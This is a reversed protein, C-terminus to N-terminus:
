SPQTSSDPETGTDHTTEAAVPEEAPDSSAQEESSDAEAPEEPTEAAAQEEEPDATSEEATEAPASEDPVDSLVPEEDPLEAALSENESEAAVSEDESEAAVPEDESEVLVAEEESEAAAPEDQRRGSQTSTRSTHYGDVLAILLLFVVFTGGAGIIAFQLPRRYKLETSSDRTLEYASSVNAGTVDLRDQMQALQEPILTTASALAQLAEKDSDSEVTVVILPAQSTPDGAFEVQTHPYRDEFSRTVDAASVSRVIVDRAYGLENLYLLPNQPLPRDLGEINYASEPPMLVVVSTAAHTPGVYSFLGFGALGAILMSALAILRRRMLAHWVESLWM